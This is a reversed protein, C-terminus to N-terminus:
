RTSSASTNTCSASVSPRRRGSATARAHRPHRRRRSDRRRRAARARRRGNVLTSKGAGNEGVLAHVEGAVDLDVDDLAQVAASASARGGQPRADGPRGCARSCARDGRGAALISPSRGAAVDARFGDIATQLGPLKKPARRPPTPSRPAAAKRDLLDPGVIWADGRLRDARGVGAAPHRLRVRDVRARGGPNVAESYPQQRLLEGGPAAACATYVGSQGAAQQNWISDVGDDIM